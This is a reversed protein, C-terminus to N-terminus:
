FVNDPSCVTATSDGITAPQGAGGCVTTLGILPLNPAATGIAGTAAVRLPQWAGVTADVTDADIDSIASVSMANGFAGLGACVTANGAPPAATAVHYQGYTAGQVVWDINSAVLHDGAAWVIKQSSPGAALVPVAAAFAVYNGTPAGVCLTRESQRLSNQSKVVAEVNTRLEAFKARLQYRLFNPIAIAALIGIIAVVIMLEILTFGRALKKQM